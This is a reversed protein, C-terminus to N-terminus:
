SKIKIDKDGWGHSSHLVFLYWQFWLPCLSLWGVRPSNSKGEELSWPGSWLCSQHLCSCLLFLFKWDRSSAPSVLSLQPVPLPVVLIKVQKYPKWNWICKFITLICRLQTHPSIFLQVLLKLHLWSDPSSSEGSLDRPKVSGTWGKGGPPYFAPHM